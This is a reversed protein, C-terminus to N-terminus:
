VKVEQLFVGQDRVSKNAHPVFKYYYESKGCELCTDGKYDKESGGGCWRCKRLNLRIDDVVSDVINHMARIGNGTLISKVKELDNAPVDFKALLRNLDNDDKAITSTNFQNSFLHDTEVELVENSIIKMVHLWPWNIPMFKSLSSLYNQGANESIKIKM